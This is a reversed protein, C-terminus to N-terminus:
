QPLAYDNDEATQKDVFFQQIAADHQARLEAEKVSWAEQFALVKKVRAYEMIQLDEKFDQVAAKQVDTLESYKLGLGLLYEKFAEMNENYSGNPLYWPQQTVDAM